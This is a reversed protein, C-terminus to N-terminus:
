EGSVFARLALRRLALISQTPSLRMPCVETCNAQSHCRFLADESLVATWSRSSKVSRQLQLSNPRCTASTSSLRLNLDALITSLGTAFNLDTASPAMLGCSGLPNAPLTTM